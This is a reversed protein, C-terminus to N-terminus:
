NKNSRNKGLLNLWRKYGVAAAVTYALFLAMTPYLGQWGYVGVALLNAVIWVWWQELYSQSLMWTAVISLATILADAYPMPADTFRNLVFTLFFFILGTFLVCFLATRKPIRCVDPAVKWRWWGYLSIAVYYINLVAMAYFGNQVFIYIYVLSTLIGVMWMSRRKMIELAVYVIGTLAGFIEIYLDINM